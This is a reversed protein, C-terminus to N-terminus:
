FMKEIVELLKQKDFPKSILATCGSDLAKQVDDTYATQAIIPIDPKSERIIRTATLGDMGPMRIDMLILDINDDSLAKEVADKGNTARIVEANIGKLFFKILMFNSDVDDVVLIRKKESFSFDSEAITHLVEAELAVPKEYPITFYFRSGRGPESTVGIKGGLLEVYAKCISLGLGTGEYVKTHPDEVQYFRDFIKTQHEPPIGIGTDAVFFEIYDGRVTYGFNVSGKLTFKLANSILNSIIQQLKTNDTFIMSEEDSLECSLGLEIKKENAKPLFQKYSSKLLSNLLFDSKNVKVINAEINAVDIIDNIISLLQNSSNIIVEVYYDFMQKTIGPESMLSAFGVIANMPTRIEHSINHLFATKLRDSEEAKEKAKILEQAAEKRDTIDRCVVLLEKEGYDIPSSSLEAWFPTRDYRLLKYEGIDPLDNGALINYLRSMVTEHYDPSVWDLISTNAIDLEGPPVRFIEYMKRSIYKVAGEMNTILIGDPSLDVLTRYHTESEIIKEEMKKRQTIDFYSALLHHAMNDQDKQCVVSVSTFIIEGNKRIFRKDFEYMDIEGAVAKDFLDISQKLDDPHTIDMWTLKMLEEKSYGLMRCLRENIQIWSKDPAIVSMGIAGSDFYNQFEKQSIRLAEVANEKQILLEKKELSFKVATGLRSLNDKLIYDDAGAKMCKVAVEENISGTVLIFPVTPILDNRIMLAQMGDFQPLTYDSIIIDPKFSNIEATYSEETYVLRWTFNIGERKLNRGIIEADERNDEVFLIKLQQGNM